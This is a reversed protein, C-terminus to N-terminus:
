TTSPFAGACGKWGRAVIPVHCCIGCDHPCRLYESIDYSLTLIGGALVELRPMRSARQQQGHPQESESVILSINPSM